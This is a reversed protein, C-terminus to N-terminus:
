CCAAAAGAGETRGEGGVCVGGYGAVSGLADFNPRKCLMVFDGPMMTCGKRHSAEM